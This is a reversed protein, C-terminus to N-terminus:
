DIIDIISNKIFFEYDKYLEEPTVDINSEMVWYKIVATLSLAYYKSVTKISINNDIIKETHKKKFFLIMLQQIKDTFFDVFYLTESISFANKYYDRDADIKYIIMKFAEKGMNTDVLDELQSFLRDELISQLIEIKDQYYNYFTPRIVGAGDTIMKITIKDFNHTKMLEIFSECLLERTLEVKKEM